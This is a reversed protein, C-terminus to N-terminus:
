WIKNTYRSNTGYSIGTKLKESISKFVHDWQEWTNREFIEVQSGNPNFLINNWPSQRWNILITKTGVGSTILPVSSKISVVIDLAACLAAVDDIDNYQDLDEFNHVTVGFKNQLPWEDEGLLVAGVWSPGLNGEM